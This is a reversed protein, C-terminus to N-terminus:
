HTCECCKVIIWLSPMLAKVAPQNLGRLSRFGLGWAWVEAGISSTCQGTLAAETIVVSVNEHTQVHVALWDM